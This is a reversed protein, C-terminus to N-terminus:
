MRNDLNFFSKKSKQKFNDFSSPPIPKIKDIDYSLNTNLPQGPDKTEVIRNNKTQYVDKFGLNNQGYQNYHVVTNGNNNTAIKEIGRDTLYELNDQEYEKRIKMLNNENFENLKEEDYTIAVNGESTKRIDNLGDKELMSKDRHVVIDGNDMKEAGFINGDNEGESNGRFYDIARKGAGVTGFVVGSVAKKGGFGLNRSGSNILNMSNVDEGLALAMSTGLAVKGLGSAMNLATDGVNGAMCFVDEKSIKGKKNLNTSLKEYNSSRTEETNQSDNNEMSDFAEATQKKNPIDTSHEKREPNERTGPIESSDKTKINDGSSTNGDYNGDYKANTKRNAFSGGVFGGLASIGMTTAQMGLQTVMNGGQGVVLGKFMITLPILAFSIIALEIGRTSIQINLLFSFVFAHFSQLFINAILERLWVSFLRKKQNEFSISVIFFPASAILIATTIGRTVYVFNIYITIILYYIQLLSGAFTQYDNNIGTFGSYNPFTTSFIDVIKENVGLLTNLLLFSSILMFGTLLLDKLTDMLTIRIMPNMYLTLFNRQVLIKLVALSLILWALCQFIMHFTTAKKMWESSMVGMYFAKSGRIGKNFVLENINYLGLLSRIGNILSTLLESLKVELVGPKSYEGAHEALHGNIMYTYNGQTIIMAISIYTVDDEYDLDLDFLLSKKGDELLPSNYGKKMKALFSYSQSGNSVVIYKGNHTYMINWIDGDKNKYDGENIIVDSASILEELTKYRKGNNMIILVENLNPILTDKIEYMRDIDKATVNNTPKRIEKSPFTFAMSNTGNCPFDFNNEYEKLDKKPISRDDENVAAVFKDANWLQAEIHKAELSYFNARDPVINGMYTMTNEDILVQFFYADHAFVKIPVSNIFILILLTTFIVRYLKNKNM